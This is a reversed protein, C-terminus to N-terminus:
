GLDVLTAFERQLHVLALDLGARTLEPLRDLVDKPIVARLNHIASELEQAAEAVAILACYKCRTHDHSPEKAPM